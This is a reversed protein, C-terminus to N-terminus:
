PDPALSVVGRHEHESPWSVGESDGCPSGFQLPGSFNTRGNAQEITTVAQPVVVAKTFTGTPHTTSVIGQTTERNQGTRWTATWERDCRKCLIKGSSGWPLHAAIFEHEFRDLDPIYYLHEPRLLAM